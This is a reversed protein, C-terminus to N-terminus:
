VQLQPKWPLQRPSSRCIPWNSNMVDCQAGVESQVRGFQALGGKIYALDGDLSNGGETVSGGGQGPVRETGSGWRPWADRQAPGGVKALCGETGSGRGEEHQVGGFWTKDGM